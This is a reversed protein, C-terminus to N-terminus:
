LELHESPNEYMRNRRLMSVTAEIKKLLCFVAILLQKFDKALLEIMHTMESDM